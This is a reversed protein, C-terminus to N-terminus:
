KNVIHGYKLWIIGDFVKNGWRYVPIFIGVMGLQLFNIVSHMYLVQCSIFWYYNNNLSWLILFHLINTNQLKWDHGSIDKIIRESISVSVSWHFPDFWLTGNSLCMWDDFPYTLKKGSSKGFWHSWLLHSSPLIFWCNCNWSCRSMSLHLFSM